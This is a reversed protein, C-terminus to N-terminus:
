LFAEDPALAQRERWERGEVEDRVFRVYEDVSRVNPIWPDVDFRHTLEGDAVVLITDDATRHLHHAGRSDIGVTYYRPRPDTGEKPTSTNTSM